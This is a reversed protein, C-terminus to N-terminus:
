VLFSNKQGEGVIIKRKQTDSQTIPTNSKIVECIMELLSFLLSKILDRVDCDTQVFKKITKDLLIICRGFRECSDNLPLIKLPLKTNNMLFDYEKSHKLFSLTFLLDWFSIFGSGFRSFVSKHFDIQVIYRCFDKSLYCIKSFLVIVAPISSHEILESCLGSPRVDKV